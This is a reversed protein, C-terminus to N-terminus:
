RLEENSDNHENLTLEFDIDFVGFPNDIESEEFVSDTQNEDLGKDLQSNSDPAESNVVERDEKTGAVLKTALKELCIQAKKRVEPSSDDNSLKKLFAVEKEDGVAVIEDLLIIKSEVDIPRFYEEFISFLEGPRTIPERKLVATDSIKEILYKIREHLSLTEEDQLLDNLLPVEREDGLAEIDDLLGVVSSEGDNYFIPKPINLASIEQKTMITKIKEKLEGKAENEAMIWDLTNEAEHESPGEIEEHVTNQKEIKIEVGTCEIEKTKKMDIDNISTPEKLNQPVSKKRKIKKKTKSAKPLPVPENRESLIKNVEPEPNEIKVESYTVQIGSIDMPENTDASTGMDSTKEPAVVLPLFELSPSEPLFDPGDEVTVLADLEKNENESKSKFQVTEFIVQRDLLDQDNNVLGCKPNYRNAVDEEVKGTVIPLFDIKLSNETETEINPIELASETDETIREAQVVQEFAEKLELEQPEISDIESKELVEEEVQLRTAQESDDEKLIEASLDEPIKFEDVDQIDKTPLVTMPAIVNITALAKSRVNFNSEKIGISELFEIDNESGLSAIAHLINIKIDVTGNWFVLKLTELAEVVHFEKTCNVAAVIIENNKHRLLEILAQNGDSQSYHKMLRLSFLVVDKNKSILWHKFSPPQFDMKNKLVELIKLQQWESIRHTTTDLFYNIGEHKLTVIAIEAQKRITARKSNIFKTVFGYSETVNMKTLEIIGKSVSPWRWNELKKYSDNHLGLSQYLDFLKHLTAGSLDKRLDMLIDILVKRNFDDNLLERIEIKLNVYNTKEEKPANEDHFLFESIM